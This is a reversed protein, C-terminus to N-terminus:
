WSMLSRRAMPSASVARVCRIQSQATALQATDIRITASTAIRAEPSGMRAGSGIARIVPAASNPVVDQTSLRNM